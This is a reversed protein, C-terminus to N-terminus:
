CTITVNGESGPGGTMVMEKLKEQDGWRGHVMRENGQLSFIFLITKHIIKFKKDNSM